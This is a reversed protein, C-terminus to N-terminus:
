VGPADSGTAFIRYYDQRSHLVRVITLRDPFVKYFILYDEFDPISWMRLEVLRPSDGVKRVTGIKAYSSLTQAAREVSDLFRYATDRNSQGIQVFHRNLDRRAQTTRRVKL